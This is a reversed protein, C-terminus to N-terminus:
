ALPLRRLRSREARRERVARVVPVSLPNSWCEQPLGIIGAYSRLLRHEGVIPPYGITTFELRCYICTIISM